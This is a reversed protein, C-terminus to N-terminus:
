VWGIAGAAGGAAILWIPGLRTALMIMVTLLILSIRGVAALAGRWGFHCEGLILSLNVVNAGPLTQALSYLEVFEARTM